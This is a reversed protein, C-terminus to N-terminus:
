FRGNGALGAELGSQPAAQLLAVSVLRCHTASPEPGLV